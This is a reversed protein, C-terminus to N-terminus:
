FWGLKQRNVLYLGGLLRAVFVASWLADLEDLLHGAIPIVRSLGTTLGQIALVIALVVLTVFYHGKVAFISKGVLIPNLGGLSDFMAVALIAMPFYLLGGLGLALGALGYGVNDLREGQFVLFIGPGFCIALTAFFQFWKGLLEGFGSFEPWSPLVHDGSATGHVIGQLMLLLYGWGAITLYLSFAGLFNLVTFLITGISLIFLGDGRFPYALADITFRLFSNEITPATGFAVPDSPTTYSTIAAASVPADALYADVSIWETMGEGYVYDEATISGTALMARINDVTFPGTVQGNVSLQVSEPYPM